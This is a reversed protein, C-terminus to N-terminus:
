TLSIHSEIQLFYFFLIEHMKHALSNDSVAQFWMKFFKLLGSIDSLYIFVYDEYRTLKTVTGQTIAVRSCLGIMTMPHYAM